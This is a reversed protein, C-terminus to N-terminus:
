AEFTVLEEQDYKFENISNVIHGPLFTNELKTVLKMLQNM